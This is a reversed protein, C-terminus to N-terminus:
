LFEKSTETVTHGAATMADVAARTKTAPVLIWDTEFTSVTFVSIEADALPTLVRVLFGTLAFDLPGDIEFAQFPGEVQVASGASATLQEADAYPVVVTQGSKTTLSGLVPVVVTTEVTKEGRGVLAVALQQDHLHLTVASM